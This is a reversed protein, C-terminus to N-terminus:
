RRSQLSFAPGAGPSTPNAGVGGPAAGQGLADAESLLQADRAANFAETRSPTPQWLPTPGSASSSSSPGSGASGQHQSPSASSQPAGSGPGNPNNFPSQQNVNKFISMAQAVMSAPNDANVPLLMTNGTKAINSFAALYQEAVRMSAAESGGNAKIAESVVQLGRSTAEARRFIAEAEGTARNIADMKAAESTLIVEAKDGEAVNIKSQRSGESELIQARKRREAEAQLEMAARVGAPPSIDRIEYRMCQLGWNAAAAGISHVINQNLADREEFTKDLTIKGLESRMTTQALQVVAYTANEVGYSAAKPDVVKVYLVGDIMLSVNDKTIASQNPIPIAMEKLSHVYAIRDVFPILIHLGPQLTKKYKGFREVVFATKEPVIRIGYNIPPARTSRFQSDAPNVFDRSLPASASFGRAQPGQLSTLLTNAPQNARTSLSELELLVSKNGLLRFLQRSRLM